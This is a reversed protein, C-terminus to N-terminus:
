GDPSNELRELQKFDRRQNEADQRWAELPAAKDQNPNM